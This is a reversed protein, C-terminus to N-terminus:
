DTYAATAKYSIPWISRLYPRYSHMYDSGNQSNDWKHGATCGVLFGQCRYSEGGPQNKSSYSSARDIDPGSDEAHSKSSPVRQCPPFLTIYQITNHSIHSVPLLSCQQHCNCRKSYCAGRYRTYMVCMKILKLQTPRWYSFTMRLPWLSLSGINYVTHQGCLWVAHLVKLCVVTSVTPWVTSDSSM